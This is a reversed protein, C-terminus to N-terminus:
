IVANIIGVIGTAISVSNVLLQPRNGVRYAWTLFCGTGVAFVILNYPYVSPGIANLSHGGIVFVAGVWQLVDNVELKM